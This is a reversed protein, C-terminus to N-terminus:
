ESRVQRHLRWAMFGLVAVALILVAWLALKRPGLAALPAPLMSTRPAGGQVEGVTAEALKLEDGRKYGPILTPVAVWAPKADRDGFALRFPGPGRAVFVVQHSRWQAELKPPTKSIGATNWDVRAMWERASHRGIEVPQSEIEQGNHRLRYFGGAGARHWDSAPPNRELIDYIAISNADAPVIRVAEVPLRAGLDFLFEGPKEGARGAVTLSERPASRVKGEFEGQVTQLRFGPAASWTVRFYKARSAPVLRAHAQGVDSAGRTLHWLTARSVLRWSQLDDSAEVTIPVVEAGPAADWHFDLAALPEALASADLLYAVPVVAKKPAGGGGHVGVLTGDQMRITVETGKAGPTTVLSSVPFMPLPTIRAPERVSDPDGALAIPVTEGNANFVRIDALDRRTDRYAAFPLTFRQLADANAPTVPASASFDSPEEAWAGLAAWAFIVGLWKM